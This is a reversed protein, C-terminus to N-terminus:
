AFVALAKQLPTLPVVADHRGFEQAVDNYAVDRLPEIKPCDGRHAENFAVALAEDSLTHSQAMLATYRQVDTENRAAKDAPRVAILAAGALTLLAAGAIGVWDPLNQALLSLTASGGIIGLFVGVAQIRRYLRAQRQTLRIAYRISYILEHRTSM